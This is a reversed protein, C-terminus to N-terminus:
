PGIDAVHDKCASTIGTSWNLPQMPETANMAEIAEQVAKAGEKTKIKARGGDRILFVENEFSDLMQELDPVISKPDQRIQNHLAFIEKDIEAVAADPEKTVQGENDM